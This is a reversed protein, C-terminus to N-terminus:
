WVFTFGRRYMPSHINALYKDLSSLRGYFGARYLFLTESILKAVRIDSNQYWHSSSNTELWVITGRPCIFDSPPTIALLTKFRYRHWRGHAYLDSFGFYLWFMFFKLGFNSITFVENWDKHFNPWIATGAPNKIHAQILNEFFFFTSSSRHVKLNYYIHVRCPLHSIVTARLNKM